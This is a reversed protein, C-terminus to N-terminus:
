YSFTEFISNVDSDASILASRLTRFTGKHPFMKRWDMLMKCIKDASIKNNMEIQEICANSLNLFRGLQQWEVGIRGAM